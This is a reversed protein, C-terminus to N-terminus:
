LARSLTHPSGGTLLGKSAERLSRFSFPRGASRSAVHHWLCTHPIANEVKKDLHLKEVKHVMNWFKM